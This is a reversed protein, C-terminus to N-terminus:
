DDKNNQKKQRLLEAAEEDSMSQLKELMEGLQDVPAGASKQQEEEIIKAVGSITPDEFLSRIPLEVKFLDRLESILQTGMLSNGGLDFFNDYIGISQIGLLKQWVQAIEKQLDTEPAVYETPLDPRDHLTKSEEEGESKQTRREVWRRFRKQLDATSVVIQGPGPNAFIREFAAVGEDPTLALRAVEMQSQNLSPMTEEFNWGDWDVSIWNNKPDQNQQYILADLAANAAAYAGFGFGGLIASISSQLLVFDLPEDKLCRVLNLAGIFKPGLQFKIDDKTLEAIPKFAQEGVLGAAHIVGNITGFHARALDICKQLSAQDTVDAKLILVEGGSKEIQLLQKIKQSVIDDEPHQDLWKEWNEREPFDVVEALALRAKAANALYASLKLGIRGLGGTILYVGKEKLYGSLSDTEPFELSSYKLIWRDRSRFAIVRDYTNNFVEFLLNKCMPELSGFVNHPLKLDIIQCAFNPFEQPIVRSLGLIIAKGPAYADFGTVQFLHNAVLTIDINRQIKKKVLAQILYLISLYGSIYSEDLIDSSQNSANVNWFHLIRDPLLDNETLYSLLRDFGDRDDIAMVFRNDGLEHFSTGIEVTILRPKVEFEELLELFSRALGTDDKLVLWTEESELKIAPKSIPIQSWSPVYFWQDFSKKVIKDDDAAAFGATIGSKMNLWYRKREFPYLPLSLRLRRENGYYARWDIQKGALWLRGITELIFAQDSVEQRPHRVSALITTNLQKDPHRRALTSLATGPGVELLIPHLASILAGLNDMFRVANRLHRAYYDPATAEEVSIWSGSVNSVYPLKPAKLPIGSVIDRFEDLVPDMMASHFAHSTHLRRFAISKQKLQEEIEAVAEFTGSLVTVGPANLAALSVSDNLFPQVESEDLQVSIMAGPDVSQMLRGRHAVVKLADELSFVGSLCAAVYEGISHGVMAAPQVGWEMWQRALAYEIVFLAPQTYQTQNLTETAWDTKQPEPYILDRLDLQLLPKLIEACQDVTAKFTPEFRYLDKAMNVYQSGQGSFMFVVSPDEPEKDHGASMLRKPDRTELIEVAEDVSGCVVMRRKLLPKRGMQLTFAIDALNQERNQKLFEVFDSTLKDLANKTKASFLLLQFPRAPDSEEAPPAEELIVHVNTGGIGFSSVGARRPQGNDVRWERLETNVFFPSNEFDIQPNPKQYNLSPPIMKHHLSLVAKILGAVGAASDLHGINTKVSGIACFQKKDTQERFVQSLAKIEIPDGLSTGTGHTEIYTVTEPDINAMIQANAIVQSQGDVSPATYGVRNAGDNNFASGKIVAYIHDGDKLADELRKLVVVGSGNGSVTGSANADFARCHGDKSLIMGEQYLYGQKQPVTISVGGAMAMDCNYNLLNLCALHVAVLSTSCATQVDVSPGTLGLKYSVRTTLFDKDNGISLQYGEASSIMGKRSMLFSYIYTNLSVGAFLGILGDFADAHYGADELAHWSIELFLRHQPDMIEAERPFFDFFHADFKDEDNIIGRAPVYNPNKLLQPDVGTEILEEEGFFSIAEKGNKLLEWFEKVSDAGPFKGAMGIIAIELGTLSDSM